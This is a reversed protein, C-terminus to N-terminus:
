VRCSTLPLKIQLSDERLIRPPLLLGRDVCGLIRCWSCIDALRCPIRFASSILRGFFFLSRVVSLKSVLRGAVSIHRQASGAPPAQGPSQRIVVYSGNVHALMDTALPRLMLSGALSQWDRSCGSYARCPYGGHANTGQRSPLKDHDEQEVPQLGCSTLYRMSRLTCARSKLTRLLYSHRLRM